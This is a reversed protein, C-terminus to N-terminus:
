GPWRAFDPTDTLPKVHAQGDPARAVVFVSRYPINDLAYPAYCTCVVRLEPRSDLGEMIDRMLDHQETVHLGRDVGEVQIVRIDPNALAARVVAAGAMGEQGYNVSQVAGFGLSCLAKAVGRLLTSKGAGNPGVIVALRPLALVAPAWGDAVAVVPPNSPHGSGLYLQITGDDQETM